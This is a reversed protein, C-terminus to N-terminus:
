GREDWRRGARGHDYHVGWTYLGLGGDPIEGLDIALLFHDHLQEPTVGGPPHVDAARAFLHQSNPSGGVARNHAPTRYGSNIKLPAGVRDRVLQLASALRQVNLKLEHPVPTQDEDKCAFESLHFNETLRM